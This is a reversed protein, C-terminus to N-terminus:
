ASGAQVGAKPRMRYRRVIEKATAVKLREFNALSQAIDSGAAFHKGTRMLLITKLNAWSLESARALIVIMESRESLMAEEVFKLPLLCLAALAAIVEEFRGNKAFAGIRSDDLQGTSQLGAVIKQAGSYDPPRVHAKAQMQHTAEIVARRVEAKAKPHAAELKARVLESATALLRRFLQPPIEPRAGVRETLLDDGNSREVLTAFGIDSFRAGANGAASLLVQKDGRAVLVDTVTESLSRRCSIALLHEQSKESANEVLSADDLRESRILVPGAVEIANDFALVRVTKPPANSISALREALMARAPQEIDAALRLIVDDFLGIEKESFSESSVIFLDTV